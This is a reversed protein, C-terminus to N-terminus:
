FKVTAGAYMYRGQIPYIGSGGGTGPNPRPPLQDLVNDMGMYFRFDTGEPEFGFRLNHYITDPYYKFPTADPNIPARGQHSFQTEWDNVTQKAVFRATYGLDFEAVDLTSFFSAEWAPLGLTGNIRTSRAPDTVFTFDEHELNYSAVGRVSLSLNTALDTVYDVEFDIGKAVLKAYNFPAQLFSPGVQPLNINPIGAVVRDRQGNFTQNAFPDASTRRFVAAYFPNNISVPDDHCQNIIAQSGVAVTVSKVKINYYDVSFSLGPVFSPQFVAGFTLSDSTEPNLNPNGAQMGSIGSAPTNTWPRTEGNVVLTTPIGAAACNRVRNPNDNILTQSCPDALSNLFTEAATSFHDGIIPARVARGFAARFRVDRIPSYVLGVNYAWVGKSATNYDLYRVADEVSLEEVFPLDALLLLRVEGFIERVEQTLLDFAGSGNLFTAGSATLTDFASYADERRYDAGVAFGIPGGPLRFLGDTDGSLYGVVNIQEAWQERSSTALM